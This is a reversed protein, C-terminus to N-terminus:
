VEAPAAPRPLPSMQAQRQWLGKPEGPSHTTGKAPTKTGVLPQQSKKVGSKLDAKAYM